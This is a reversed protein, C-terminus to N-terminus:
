RPPNGTNQLTRSHDVAPRGTRTTVHQQGQGHLIEVAAQVLEAFTAGRVIWNTAGQAMADGVRDLSVTGTIVMVSWGRACLPGILDVGDIPRGGPGPGLDLGLLALGPAHEVADRLMGALDTVRLSHADFGKGRLAHALASSVLLQEDIVLITANASAEQCM